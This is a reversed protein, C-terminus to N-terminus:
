ARQELAMTVMPAMPAMTVVSEHPLGLLCGGGYVSERVLTQSVLIMEQASAEEEPFFRQKEKTPM